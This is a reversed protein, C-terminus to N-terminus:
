NFKDWWVIKGTSVYYVFTDVASSSRNLLRYALKKSQLYSKSDAAMAFFMLYNGSNDELKYGHTTKILWHCSNRHENFLTVPNLLGDPQENLTKWVVDKYTGAKWCELHLMATPTVGKDVKLVQQVHGIIDGMTISQGIHLNDPRIEGYVIDYLGDSIVVCSTDNWWPSSVAAGTFQGIHVVIGTTISSVPEGINAYLDIGAHLDHKRIAAFLGCPKVGHSLSVPLM